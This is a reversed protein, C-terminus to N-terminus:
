REVYCFYFSNLVVIVLLLNIFFSKVDETKIIINREKDNLILKISVVHEVKFGCSRCDITHDEHCNNTKNM